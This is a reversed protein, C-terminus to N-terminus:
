RGALITTGSITSIEFDHDMLGEGHEQYLKVFEDPDLVIKKLDSNKFQILYGLSKLTSMYLFVGKSFIVRPDKGSKIKGETYKDFLKDVEYTKQTGGFRTKCKVIQVQM